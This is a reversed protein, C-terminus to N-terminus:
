QTLDDDDDSEADSVVKVDIETGILRHFNNEPSNEKNSDFLRLIDHSSEEVSSFSSQCGPLLKCGEKVPYKKATTFSSLNMASKILAPLPDLIYKAGEQHCDEYLLSYDITYLKPDDGEQYAVKPVQIGDSIVFNRMDNLM